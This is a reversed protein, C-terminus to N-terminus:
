HQSLNFAPPSPSFLSHSTQIADSVRHAHIQTFEPLQHHVPFGPRSCDTPDCITSCLKTVSRFQFCFSLYLLKYLRLFHYIHVDTIVANALILPSVCHFHSLHPLSKTKKEYFIFDEPQWNLAPQHPSMCVFQAQKRRDNLEAMRFM